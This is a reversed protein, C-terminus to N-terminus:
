HIGRTWWTRLAPSSCGSAMLILAIGAFLTAKLIADKSNFTMYEGKTVGDIRSFQEFFWRLGFVGGMWGVENIRIPAEPIM